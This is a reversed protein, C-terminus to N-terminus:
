RRWRLSTAVSFGPSTYRDLVPSTASVGRVDGWEWYTEDLLNLLGLNLTLHSTLDVFGTLDILEASPAAFQNVVTTDLDDADKKALLTSTLEAGFRSGPHRYQLGLVLRTPSISNLPLDRAEDEGEIWAFAGRLRLRSGLASDGAVEVGQIRVRTLNQPQFEILGSEPNIGVTVTEIFRDYHNDFLTLILSTRGPRGLSTRVGVEYNDSTEPELDPNALTTYGSALNTFGNNVDSYPPARFGRAYQVYLATSPRPAYVVSLKPSLASDTLDAAPPTGPNGSQFIADNQDADLDFRDFRLGPTVQLRGDLLQIQAQLYGGLELVESAPFYRTPFPLVGPVPNGTALNVDRRDRLQEFRDRSASLGYTLLVPTERVDFSRLLQAEGGLRDQDFTMRGTREIQSATVRRERTLQESATEQGYVRVQLIEFLGTTRQLTWDLSLRHRESEDEAISDRITLPGQAGQGSLFETDASGDFLEFGIRLNSSSGPRFVLKGLAQSAERDQPNPATRTANTSEISGQNEREHGDRRSLLLSGDWRERGVAASFSGTSERDRSDYGARLRFASNQGGLLDRPDKTVVSVVGGLADSGYLSSAASRVVEVSSVTELDLFSQPIALPGFSFQEATPIGDIQTLVRNGGIGRINFGSLGLRTVDGEVYIGPEYRLLDRSDNAMLQEIRAGDIVSVSGPADQVSSPSRTATVTIADLFTPPEAPDTAGSAPDAATAPGACFLLLAFLRPLARM